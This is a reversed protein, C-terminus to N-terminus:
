KKGIQCLSFGKRVAEGIETNSASVAIQIPIIWCLRMERRLAKRNKYCFRDIAENERAAELRSFEGASWRKNFEAPAIMRSAKLAASISEGIAEDSADPALFMPEMSPEPVAILGTSQSQIWYFDGNFFACARAAFEIM